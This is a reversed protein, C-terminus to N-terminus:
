RGAAWRIAGALHARFQPDAYSEMTHGMATYWARGGDFAHYWALPHPAGM